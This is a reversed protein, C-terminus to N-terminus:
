THEKEKRCTKVTLHDSISPTPVQLQPLLVVIRRWVLGLAVDLVDPGAREVEVVDVAHEPPFVDLSLSRKRRENGWTQEDETGTAKCKSHM